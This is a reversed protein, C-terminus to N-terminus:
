NVFVHLVIFKYLYRCWVTMTHVTSQVSQAPINSAICYVQNENDLKVARIMLQSTTKVLSDLADTTYTSQSTIDTSSMYWTINAPPSCYSTTCTLNMQQGAIVTIPTPTLTLSTLPVTFNLCWVFVITSSFIM